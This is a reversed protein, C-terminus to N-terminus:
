KEKNKDKENEDDSLKADVSEFCLKCIGHSTENNDNDTTRILKGGWACVIKM